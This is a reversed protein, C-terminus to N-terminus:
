LLAAADPFLPQCLVRVAADAMQSVPQAYGGHHWTVVMSMLGCVAFTVIQTQMLPEENPLFRRPMAASLAYDISRRILLGALDNKELAELLLNQHQWFEFFRSLDRHLSRNQNPAFVCYSEFDMLIHDILAHLAGEKSSFYRYFSKRPIDMQTCLDSVSLQDYRQTSIAALFGEELKRQRAASQETKCLKYM